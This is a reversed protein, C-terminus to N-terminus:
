LILCSTQILRSLRMLNKDHIDGRNRKRSDEISAKVIKIAREANIFHEFSQMVVDLACQNISRSKKRFALERKNQMQVILVAEVPADSGFRKALGTSADVKFEVFLLEKLFGYEETFTSRLSNFLADVPGAGTGSMNRIKKYGKYVLRLNYSIRTSKKEINEWIQYENGIRATVYEDELVEKIVKQVREREFEQPLKILSPTMDCYNTKHALILHKIFKM